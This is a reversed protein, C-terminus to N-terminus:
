SSTPPEEIWEQLMTQVADEDLHGYERHFDAQIPAMLAQLRELTEQNQRRVAETILESLKASDLLGLARAAREVDPELHVQLTIM